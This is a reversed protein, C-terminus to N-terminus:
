SKSNEALDVPALRSSLRRQAIVRSLDGMPSHPQEFRHHGVAQQLQSNMANRQEVPTPDRRLNSFKEYNIAM